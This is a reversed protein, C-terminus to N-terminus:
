YWKGKNMMRMLGGGVKESCRRRKCASIRTRWSALGENCESGKEEWGSGGRLTRLFTRFLAEIYLEIYRGGKSTHKPCCLWARPLAWVPAM